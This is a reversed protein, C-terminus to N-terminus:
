PMNPILSVAVIFEFFKYAGTGFGEPKRQASSVLAGLLEDIAGHFKRKGTRNLEVM